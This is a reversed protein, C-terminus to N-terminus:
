TFNHFVISPNESGIGDVRDVVVTLDAAQHDIGWGSLSFYLVMLSIIEQRITLRLNDVVKNRHSRVGRHRQMKILVIFQEGSFEVRDGGDAPGM